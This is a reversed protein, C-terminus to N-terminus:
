TVANLIPRITEELLSQGFATPHTGDVYLRPNFAARDYGMASNAFDCYYDCHRGVWSSMVRNCIAREINFDPQARPLTACLVIKIGAARREDLYQALIELYSERSGGANGYKGNIDNGPLLSMFNRGNRRYAEPMPNRSRWSSSDQSNRAIDFLKVPPSAKKEYLMPYTASGNEATTISDGEAIYVDDVTQAGAPLAALATLGVVL